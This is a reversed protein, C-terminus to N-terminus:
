RLQLDALQDQLTFHAVLQTHDNPLPLPQATETNAAMLHPLTAILTNGDVQVHLRYFRLYSQYAARANAVPLARLLLPFVKHIRQLPKTVSRKYRPDKCLVYLVGGAYAVDFYFAARCLGVALSALVPGNVFASLPQEADILEPIAHGQGHARVQQACGLVKPSIGSAANAWSWLWTRHDTSETGVAQVSLQLLEHPLKFTLIGEDLAFSWAHNGLM